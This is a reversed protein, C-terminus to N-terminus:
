AQAAAVLIVYATRESLAARGSLVGWSTTIFMTLKANVQLQQQKLLSESTDLKGPKAKDASNCNAKRSDPDVARFHYGKM